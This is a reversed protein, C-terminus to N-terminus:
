ADKEGFHNTLLLSTSQGSTYEEVNNAEREIRSWEEKAEETYVALVYACNLVITLIVAVAACLVSLRPRGFRRKKASFMHKIPKKASKGSIIRERPVDYYAIVRGEHAKYYYDDSRVESFVVKIDSCYEDVVIAKDYAFNQDPLINIRSCEINIHGLDEGSSNMQIITFRMSTVLYDAYNTFRLFLCKKDNMRSFIYDKVAIFKSIQPYKYTGKSIIRNDQTM